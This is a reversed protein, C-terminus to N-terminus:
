KITKRVNVYEVLDFENSMDILHIKYIIEGIGNM